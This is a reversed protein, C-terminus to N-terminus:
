GRVPQSLEVLAGVNRAIRTVREPRFTSRYLEWIRRVEDRFTGWELYPDLRSVTLGQNTVQAVYKEDQSHLRIGVAQSVTSVAPQSTQNGDM